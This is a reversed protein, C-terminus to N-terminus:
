LGCVPRASTGAGGFAGFAVAAEISIGKALDDDCESTCGATTMDAFDVHSAVCEM